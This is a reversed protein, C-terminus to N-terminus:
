SMAIESLESQNYSRRSNERALFVMKTPCSQAISLGDLIAGRFAKLVENNQQHDSVKPWIGPHMNFPGHVPSDIVVLNDVQYQRSNMLSVVDRGSRFLELSDRFSQYKAFNEPVLFPFERFPVPVDKSLMAM